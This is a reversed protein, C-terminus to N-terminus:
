TTINTNPQPKSINFYEAIIDAEMQALQNINNDNLMWTAMAKNTYFSHEIIFGNDNGVKECGQLVGYWEGGSNKEKTIVEYNEKTGMLEKIAKGFKTALDHKKKALMEIILVHDASEREAANAHLSIFLDCGTSKQGRAITGMEVNQNGRTGIVTIGYEELYKKLKVYLKWNFDSEYYAPVVSSRNYLGDHGADLCIKIAM